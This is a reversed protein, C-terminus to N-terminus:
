MADQSRFPVGLANAVQPRYRAKEVYYNTLAYRLGTNVPSARHVICTNVLVVSGAPAMFNKPAMGSARVLDAVEEDSLRWQFAKLKSRYLDALIRPLRHSGPVFEFAGNREDVDCMYAIAKIQRGFSDRHWRDKIHAEEKVPLSKNALTAINVVKTRVYAEAISHLFPDSFFDLIPRGLDESGFYRYEAGAYETRMREPRRDFTRDLLAVVEDCKHKPIHGEVVVWGDRDLTDLLKQVRDDNLRSVPFRRTMSANRLGIVGYHMMTLPVALARVKAIETIM